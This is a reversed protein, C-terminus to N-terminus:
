GTKKEEKEDASGVSWQVDEREEASLQTLIWRINGTMGNGHDRTCVSSM